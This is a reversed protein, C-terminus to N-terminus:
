LAWPMRPLHPSTSELPKRSVPQQLRLFSRAPSAVESLTCRAPPLRAAVAAQAPGRWRRPLNGCKRSDRRLFRKHWGPTRLRGIPNMLTSRRRYESLAAQCPRPPLQSRRPAAGPRCWSCFHCCQRLLHTRGQRLQSSPSVWHPQEQPTASAPCFRRSGSLAQRPPPWARSVASAAGLAEASMELLFNPSRASLCHQCCLPFSM